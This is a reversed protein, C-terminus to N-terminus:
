TSTFFFHAISPFASRFLPIRTSASQLVSVKSKQGNEKNSVWIWIKKHFIFFGLRWPQSHQAQKTNIEGFIMSWKCKVGSSTQLASVVCCHNSAKNKVGSFGVSCACEWTICDKFFISLASKYWTYSGSRNTWFRWTSSAHDWLQDKQKFQKHPYLKHTKVDSQKSDSCLLHSAPRVKRCVTWCLTSTQLLFLSCWKMNLTLKTIGATRPNAGQLWVSLINRSM